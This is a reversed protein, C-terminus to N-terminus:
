QPTSNSQIQDEKVALNNLANQIGGQITQDPSFPKSTTGFGTGTAGLESGSVGINPAGVSGSMITGALEGPTTGRNENLNMDDNDEEEEEEYIYEYEESETMVPKGQGDFGKISENNLQNPDIVQVNDLTQNNINTEALMM